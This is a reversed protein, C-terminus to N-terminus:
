RHTYLNDIGDRAKHITHYLNSIQDDFRSTAAPDHALAAHTSPVLPQGIDDEVKKLDAKVTNTRDVARGRESAHAVADARLGEVSSQSATLKRQLEAITYDRSEIKSQFHAKAYPVVLSVCLAFIAAAGGAKVRKSVFSISSPIFAFVMACALSLSILIVINDQLAPAFTACGTIFFVLLVASVFLMWELRSINYGLPPHIEASVMLNDTM